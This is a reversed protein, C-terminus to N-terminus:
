LDFGIDKRYYKNEFSIRETNEYSLALADKYNDGLATLAIVRGGNTLISEAEEKTGAHFPICDRIDEFGSMVKNKEYQEPYGGSVLMVTTASQDTVNIMESKLNGTVCADMHAFLDAEIRPLIVKTEPDGLRM